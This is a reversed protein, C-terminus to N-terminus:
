TVYFTISDSLVIFHIHSIFPETEGESYLAVEIMLQLVVRLIDLYDYSSHAYEIAVSSIFNKRM